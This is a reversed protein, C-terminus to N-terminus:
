LSVRLFASGLWGSLGIRIGQTGEVWGTDFRFMPTFTVHDGVRFSLGGGAGGMRGRGLEPKSARGSLAPEFIVTRSLPVSLAIEAGALNEQNAASGGTTDGAARHFDWLSIALTSRGVPSVLNGEVLWRPGPRYAGRLAGAKGFQDDGFTSYTLGFSLHSGGILRDAAGRFRGEVGPKYTIPGAADEYATFSRGMRVSGALGLSWAGAQIAAALGSTVSLGSAYGTVPFGLLGPSVAGIVIYDLPTARELGTPLNVLVTAVIADRGLVVSGRVQTDTFAKVEAEVGDARRLKTSVWATGIDFTFRGVPIVAGFPTNVQRLRNAGALREFSLSRSEVGAFFYGRPTEEQASVTRPPFVFFLLAIGQAPRNM